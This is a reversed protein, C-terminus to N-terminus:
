PRAFGHICVGKIHRQGVSKLQLVHTHSEDFGRRDFVNPSTKKHLMGPGANASIRPEKEM